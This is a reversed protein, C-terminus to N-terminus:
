GVIKKKRIESPPKRVLDNAGIEKALEKALKAAVEDVDAEGIGILTRDKGTPVHVVRVFTRGRDARGVDVRYDSPITKKKM